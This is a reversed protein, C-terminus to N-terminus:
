VELWLLLYGVFQFLDFVYARGKVHKLRRQINIAPAFLIYLHAILLIDKAFVILLILKPVVAADIM